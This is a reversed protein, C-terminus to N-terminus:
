TEGNREGTALVSSMLQGTETSGLHTVLMVGAHALKDGIPKACASGSMIVNILGALLETGQISEAMLKVIYSVTYLVQIERHESLTDILYRNSLPLHANYMYVHKKNMISRFLCKLGFMHYIPLTVFGVLNIPSSSNGMAALHTVYNPRPLSTSGSSHIIYAIHRSERTPDLQTESGGTEIDVCHFDELTGLIGLLLSPIQRQADKGTLPLRTSLLLVSHGLRSLALLTIFYAFTSPGLLALVQVPEDYSTRKHIFAEYYSAAKDALRDVQAPTFDVYSTGSSSYSIIPLDKAAVETARARVLETLTSFSELRRASTDADPTSGSQEYEAM